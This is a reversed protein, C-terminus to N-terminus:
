FASKDNTIKFVTKPLYGFMKTVIDFNFL